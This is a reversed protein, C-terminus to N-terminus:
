LLSSRVLCTARGGDRVVVEGKAAVADGILGTRGGSPVLAIGGEAAM